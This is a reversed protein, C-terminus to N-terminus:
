LLANKDSEIAIKVSKKSSRTRLPNATLKGNPNRTAQERKRM